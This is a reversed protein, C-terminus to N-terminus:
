QKVVRYVVSSNENSIKFLYVGNEENELNVSKTSSANLPYTEITRGNLDTLELIYGDVANGNNINVINNTPNPYVSFNKAIENIGATFTLRGFSMAQVDRSTSTPVDFLYTFEDTTTNYAYVEDWYLAYIVDNNMSHLASIEGPHNTGTYITEAYSSAADLTVVEAQNMHYLSNQHATIASGYNGNDFTHLATTVGTTPDISYLQYDTDQSNSNAYLVGAKDFSIESMPGVNAIDLIAGTITDLIGLRRNAANENDSAGGDTGYLIYMTYDAPNVSLGYVGLVNDTHSTTLTLTSSVTFVGGTTDIIDIESPATPM